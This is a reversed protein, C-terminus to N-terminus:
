NHCTPDLERALSHLQARQMPLPNDWGSAWWPLGGLQSKFYFKIAAGHPKYSRLERISGLTRVTYAHLGLCQVVLSNRASQITGFIQHKDKFWSEERVKSVSAEPREHCMGGGTTFTTADELVGSLEFKRSAGNQIIMGSQHSRGVKRELFFFKKLQTM